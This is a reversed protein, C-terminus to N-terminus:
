PATEITFTLACQNWTVSRPPKLPIKPVIIELPMKRAKVTFPQSSSPACASQGSVLPGSRAHTTKATGAIRSVTSHNTSSDSSRSEGPSAPCSSKSVPSADLPSPSPGTGTKASKLRMRVLGIMRVTAAISNQM